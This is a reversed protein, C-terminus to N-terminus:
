HLSLSSLTVFLCLCELFGTVLQSVTQSLLQCAMEGVLMSMGALCLCVRIYLPRCISVLVPIFVPVSLLDITLTSSYKDSKSM